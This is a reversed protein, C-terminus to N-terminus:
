RVFQALKTGVGQMSATRATALQETRECAFHKIVGLLSYRRVVMTGAALNYIFRLNM